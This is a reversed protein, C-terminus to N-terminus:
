KTKLLEKAVTVKAELNQFKFARVKGIDVRRGKVAIGKEAFGSDVGPVLLGPAVADLAEIYVNVPRSLGRDLSVPAM